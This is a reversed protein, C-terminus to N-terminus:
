SPYIINAKNKIEKPIQKILTTDIGLSILSELKIFAQPIKTILNGHLYLEELLSLNRISEPLEKLRNESLDLYELSILNGIFPFKTLNTHNLFLNRIFRLKGFSKPLTTFKNYSLDLSQLSVLNGISKPLNIIENYSLDLYQLSALNGISEPLKELLNHGLELEVLSTLNGISKPLKTLKNERLDLYKLSTLNGISESLFEINKDRLVLRQLSIKKAISFLNKHDLYGLYNEESLYEIISENGSLARKLIEEKLIQKAFVDGADAIEKLLPFALNRHLLRTDYKMEVWVQLNSCHGWFEDEHPIINPQDEMERNIKEAAEDISDIEDFTIIEDFRLQILLKKCQRFLHSKIYINTKGDELKLTIYESVKFIKQSLM